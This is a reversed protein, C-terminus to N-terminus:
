GKLALVAAFAEVTFGEQLRVHLAVFDLQLRCSQHSCVLRSM